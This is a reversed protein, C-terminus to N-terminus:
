LCSIVAELLMWFWAGSQVARKLRDNIARGLGTEPFREVLVL